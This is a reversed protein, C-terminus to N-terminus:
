DLYYGNTYQGNTKYHSKKHILISFFYDELVRKIEQTTEKTLSVVIYDVHLGQLADIYLPKNHYLHLNCQKDMHIPFRENKRDQLVYSGEKCTNCGIVKRNYKQESIPCYKSIMNEIYGYVTYFIDQKTQLQNVQKRSMELSCIFDNNFYQSAYSNYINMSSDLICHKDKCIELTGYNGAVITDIEQYIISNKFKKITEESTLFHTYPIVKIGQQKALKLAENFTEDMPYFIYIVPYSLAMQLQEISVVKVVIGKLNHERTAVVPVFPLVTKVTPTTRVLDLEEVARRRLANIAQISITGDKPFQVTIDKTYYITNGLKQLQQQMRERSLPQHTAVEVMNDSYCIVQHIGADLILKLPADVEGIVQMTIPIKIQEKTYSNQATTLLLTDAIKYVIDHIPIKSDMEIEIVDKPQAQNILKNNKYLKTITRAMDKSQFIIRDNQKLPEHLTIMVRKTKPNYNSVQGIKVGRNGPYEKAMFDLDNFLHGKTFGRNFMKKMNFILLLADITEKQIYADIAKRYANVIVAVYEPRKMRGEIKFSSVGASILEGINEITCLDKPSLLFQGNSSLSKNNKLLTYGLRCPQACSGKNGSRKGIFSSMLCQGSYSVCLSGHVFVEIDISTHKCIEKIDFLTNERALVVRQIELKAIYTIDTVQLIGAQTSMHIELNPFYTKILQVVGFDQVIVADVDTNYLFLLYQYLEEYDMDSYLINVTVYIKVNRLHAYTVANEIEENSFNTAFARASFQNGGLYIANAGNQIAAVLAEYSGAPALLEIIPKM